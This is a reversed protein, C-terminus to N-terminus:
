VTTVQGQGVPSSPRLLTCDGAARGPHGQQSGLDGMVSPLQEEALGLRAAEWRIGSQGTRAGAPDPHGGWRWPTAPGERAVRCRPPLLAPYAVSPFALRHEQGEASGHRTLQPAAALWLALLLWPPNHSHALLFSQIFPNSGMPSFRKGGWHFYLQVTSVGGLVAEATQLTGALAGPSSHASGGDSKPKALVGCSEAHAPAARCPTPATHSPADGGPKPAGYRPVDDPLTM